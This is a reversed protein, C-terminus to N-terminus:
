EETRHVLRAIRAIIKRFLNSGLHVATHDPYHPPPISPNSPLSSVTLPELLRRSTTLMGETNDTAISILGSKTWNSGIQNGSAHM